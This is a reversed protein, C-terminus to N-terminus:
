KILSYRVSRNGIQIFTAGAHVIDFNRKNRFINYPLECILCASWNYICPYLHRYVKKASCELIVMLIQHYGADIESFHGQLVSIFKTSCAQQRFSVPVDNSKFEVNVINYKSSIHFTARYM